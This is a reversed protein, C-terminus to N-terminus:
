SEEISMFMLRGGTLSILIGIAANMGIFLYFTLNMSGVMFNFLLRTLLGGLGWAFMWGLTVKLGKGEGLLGSRGLVLAIVLGMLLGTFLSILMSYVLSNSLIASISGGMGFGLSGAVLSLGHLLYNMVYSGAFSGAAWGLGILLAQGFTLGAVKMLVFGVVLGIALGHVPVFYMNLSSLYNTMGYRVALEVLVWWIVLQWTARGVSTKLM